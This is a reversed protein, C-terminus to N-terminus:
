KTNYQVLNSNKRWFDVSSQTIFIQLILSHILLRWRGFFIEISSLFEIALSFPFSDILAVITDEEPEEVKAKWYKSKSKQSKVKATRRCFFGKTSFYLLSM